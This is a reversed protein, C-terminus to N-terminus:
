VCGMGPQQPVGAPGLVERDAGSSVKPPASVARSIPPSGVADGLVTQHHEEGAWSGAPGQLAAWCSRNFTCVMSCSLEAVFGLM